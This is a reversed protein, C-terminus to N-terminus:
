TSSLKTFHLMLYIYYNYLVGATLDYGCDVLLKIEYSKKTGAKTVM